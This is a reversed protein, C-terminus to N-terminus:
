NVNKLIDNITDEDKCSYKNDASYFKRSDAHCGGNEKPLVALMPLMFGYNKGIFYTHLNRLTKRRMDKDMRAFTSMDDGEKGSWDLHLFVNNAKSSFKEHWLLAWCWDGPQKWWRSFCPSNEITGDTKLGVGGEIFDFNKLYDEDEIDNTQAGIVIEIGLFNASEQMRAIIKSVWPDSIKEEQYNIQGFLFSQIGIEMAKSTIYELYKRYELRSFSPVCTHEGWYNDGFSKRCMASFDFDRNENPYYLKSKKDIAEAIFMGYVLEKKAISNKIEQAKEFDPVALWTELSRHLYYCNSRKILDVNKRDDDGYGSLLGEAVCGQTKMKQVNPPAPLDNRKLDVAIKQKEIVVAPELFVAEKPVDFVSNTKNIMFFVIGLFVMLLLLVVFFYRTKIKKLIIM